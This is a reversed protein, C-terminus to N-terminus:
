ITGRLTHSTGLLRHEIELKDDRAGVVKLEMGKTLWVHGAILEVNETAFYRFASPATWGEVRVYGANGSSTVIRLRRTHMDSPLARPRLDIKAGSLKAIPSGGSQQSFIQANAAPATSGAIHCRSQSATDAAGAEVTALALAGALAFTL